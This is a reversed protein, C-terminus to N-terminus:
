ARCRITECPHGRCWIGLPIYTMERYRCSVQMVATTSIKYCVTVEGPGTEKEAYLVKGHDIIMAYRGTREGLTWGISQSFKTGVDSM